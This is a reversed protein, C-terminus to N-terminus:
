LIRFDCIYIKRVSFQGNIYLLIKLTWYNAKFNEPFKGSIIKL